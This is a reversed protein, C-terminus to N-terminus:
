THSAKAEIKVDSVDIQGTVAATILAKRKEELLNSMRSIRTKVESGFDVSQILDSVIEKQTSIPPLPIVFDGIQSFTVAERSAGTQNASIQRQVLSSSIVQNLYHPLIHDRNPRIICVHQNVNAPPTGSPVVASRGISAGTINLLVDGEEVHTSKMESHTESSIYAVDELELGGERVNQSRIFPIGSDVYSESGGDPTEGSGIKETILSLKGVDWDTPLTGLWPSDTEKIDTDGHPSSKVMLDRQIEIRTQISSMLNDFQAQAEAMKLESNSLFEAIKRQVQMEPLPIEVNSISESSIGFRTVGKAYNEFQSRAVSSALAYYFFEPNIVSPDPRILFLHYGCVVDEFDDPIYAPIGIDDKSESDKTLLIDGEQLRFKSAKSSTTTAEM